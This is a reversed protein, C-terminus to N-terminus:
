EHVAAKEQSAQGAHIDTQIGTDGNSQNGASVPEYNMSKILSDIDFLWALGSGVVNSKNELFNVHLNEEVKRTRSNFVRFAKSNVFYGVLFGEDAKGNHKGLHDLTNLITVLCGFPRMFELNPSRGILLEYPTKNHPKTVLVIQSISFLNFKLEKVFYVDEFDLKGSKIKGKGTIKGGKLSDGFAVFGGDIEQYETLFSKNGTMHRRKPFHSSKFYSSKANVNSRIAVTNVKPRTTSTSAASNQKAANVLVQGPKTAIAQAVNVTVLLQLKISPLMLKWSAASRTNNWVPRVERQGTGKGKNNVVSKEIMKNDNFTYDKILHNVSGCVFYARKNFEFGIGQKQTKMGTWEVRCDQRKRLNEDHNNTHKKPIYKNTCEVSNDNSSIEQETLTKDECEDESDSEWDEIIPASSRVTKPEERTEESSKSAISENENVSTRTESIKFKFVYDDLEAFSINARPPMYNGTYPPPVAHYGIRLQSDYSLGNKDNASMQSNILKILNKSSGEFKTLKEKLDDKEKMTEELESNSSNASDLSHAMPAFYTPGKEAQYSWDYGGLGDQVVLASTHTEVLVVRRENDASRNGQNRPACCERAFYGRRHCNYCEVKTKNFGVLEKGNFNLNRRTRKMFKMVRMTIMAVHWKLDIEELDDTDIDSAYSSALPQENSGATPIDHADTLTKAKLENKKALKQAKTKPPVVTGVAPPEPVPSDGNLIVEWLAYDTHTLYQEMRMSWLDYDRTKLMPLKLSSINQTIELQPEM